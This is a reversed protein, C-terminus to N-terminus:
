HFIEIVGDPISGPVKRSTPLAEVLRAGRHGRWVSSEGTNLLMTCFKTLIAVHPGWSEEV